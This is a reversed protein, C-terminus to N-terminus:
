PAGAARLSAPSACALAAGLSTKCRDSGPEAALCAQCAAVAEACRGLRVRSICVGHQAEPSGPLLAAARAYGREAEDYRGSAYAMFALDHHAAFRSADSELLHLYERRARAWYADRRAPTEHGALLLARALNQRADGLDPDIALAARLSEEAKRVKGEALLAEGLNAHGEAFEHNRRLAAEFRRRALPLDGRHRAVLGLGNLGEPLDPDFALAHEFAVEARELDGAALYGYGRQLQEAARPAVRGSHACATAALAALLAVAVPSARPRRAPPGPPPSPLTHASAGRRDDHALRAVRSPLPDM